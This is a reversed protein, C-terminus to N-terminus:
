RTNIRHVILSVAKKFDGSVFFINRKKVRNKWKDFDPRDSDLGIYTVSAKTKSLHEWIHKDDLHIKVGSIFIQTTTRVADEFLSQQANIFDPCMKTAKGECYMSMVPSFDSVAQFKSHVLDPHIAKVSAVVDTKNGSFTVGKFMELDADPWFNSSGHPKILRFSKERAELSYTINFSSYLAAKEFLLDYNLSSFIVRRHNVQNVLRVYENSALPQFQALYHAILRQMGMVNDGSHEIFQKMGLEFNDKFAKRLADPLKLLTPDHRELRSFLGDDGNGLPPRCPLVEGSGFSAGAGLLVLSSM